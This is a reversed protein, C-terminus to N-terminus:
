RLENGCLQLLKIEKALSKLKERNLTNLWKEARSLYTINWQMSFRIKPSTKKFTTCYITSSNLSIKLRIIFIYSAWHNPYLEDM